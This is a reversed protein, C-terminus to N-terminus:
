VLAALLNCVTAVFFLNATPNYVARFNVKVIDNGNVEGLADISELSACFDFQAAKTTFTGGTGTLASGTFLMRFQKTTRAVFDDYRAVGVADHEFTMSGRIAPAAMKTLIYFLDGDGTWVPLIGTEIALDFGLWTNTLQTAGLTGGVADCYLKGKGFLVEEVVQATLSTYTSKAVQRGNWNSSWKVAEGPAGSINITLPFCYAAEYEQNDDGMEWTYAKTAAQATTAATYVYKYGNTTGGNAAGSVVDLIGAALPQLQEYTLETEPLEFSALYKPVYSRDTQVLYGIDDQPFVVTNDNKMVPAPGRWIATAAVGTGKSSELGCQGKRLRLVGPM